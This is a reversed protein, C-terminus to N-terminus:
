KMLEKLGDELRIKPTWGLDFEESDYPIKNIDVSRPPNMTYQVGIIDALNKISTSHKTCIEYIGPRAGFSALIAKCVDNVHIFDREDSGDGYITAPVDNLKCKIFSSIASRKKQLYGIGGYVNSLRLVVGGNRLVLKEALHKTVGYVNHCTKAAFTSIFIVPIECTKAANVVNSTGIVNIEIAEEINKECYSVDPLAALHIVADCAKMTQYISKEDMIDFGLITDYNVYSCDMDRITFIFNIGIYGSGGIIFFKM